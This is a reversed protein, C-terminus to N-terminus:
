VCRPSWTYRLVEMKLDNMEAELSSIKANMGHLVLCGSLGFYVCAMKKLHEMAFKLNFNFRLADKIVDRWKLMKDETVDELQLHEM